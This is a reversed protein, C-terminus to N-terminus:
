RLFDGHGTSRQHEDDWAAAFLGDRVVNYHPVIVPSFRAV